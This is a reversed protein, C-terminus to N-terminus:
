INRQDGYQGREKKTLHWKGCLPCEYVYLTVGREQKIDAAVKEAIRKSRYAKKRLCSRWMKEALKGM